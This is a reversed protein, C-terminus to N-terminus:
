EITRDISALGNNFWQLLCRKIPKSESNENIYILSKYRGIKTSLREIALSGIYIPPLQPTIIEKTLSCKDSSTFVIFGRCRLPRMSYIGCSSDEKLFMCPTNEKLYNHYMDHLTHHELDHPSKTTEMKEKMDKIYSEIEKIEYETKTNKLHRRIVEAEIATCELYLSCCHGCGKTCPSYSEFQTLGEDVMSYINSLLEEGKSITIFEDEKLSFINDLAFNAISDYIEMNKSDNFLIDVGKYNKGLTMYEYNKNKCCDGYNKGSNCPCNDNVGINIKTEKSLITEM